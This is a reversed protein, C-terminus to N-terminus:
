QATHRCIKARLFEAKLDRKAGGINKAVVNYVWAEIIGIILGMIGFAIPMLIIAAIGGFVGPFPGRATSLGAAVFIGAIFGFVAMIVALIKGLSMPDIAKLERM